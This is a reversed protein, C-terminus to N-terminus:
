SVWEEQKKFMGLITGTLGILAVLIIVVKLVIHWDRLIAHLLVGILIAFQAPTNYQKKKKFESLYFFILFAGLVVWRIIGLVVM